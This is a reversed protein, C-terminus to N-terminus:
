LHRYFIKRNFISSGEVVFSELFYHLPEQAFRKTWQGRINHPHFPEKNQYKDSTFTNGNVALTSYYYIVIPFLSYQNILFYYKLSTNRIYQTRGSGSLIYASNSTELLSGVFLRESSVVLNQRSIATFCTINKHTRSLIVSVPLTLALLM